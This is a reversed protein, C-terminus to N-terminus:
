YKKAYKVMQTAQELVQEPTMKLKYAMHIDSTAIFTHIRPYKAEKLAEAAADIDKTLARALSAVCSNKMGKAISKVSAFDGPSAIAFGAEMVDVGLRDLQHAMELKEKLNMSCGPSQEGDRLTTDFIRVFDTM